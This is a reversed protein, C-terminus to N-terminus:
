KNALQVVPVGALPSSSPKALSPDSSSAPKVKRMQEMMRRPGPDNTHDAFRVTEYKRRIATIRYDFRINSAGGGLERVEFSNASKKTVYLGRCDGNPVPFVRYDKETNVSQIFDPDLQIVAVGNVLQASGFDEFWNEPSEIAALAVKRKGGDIPVVANKSGTCILDGAPDVYCYTANSVNEVFFPYGSSDYNFAMLTDGGNSLFLGAAAPGATGLVGAYTTSNGPVLGTDGWVGAGTPLIGPGWISPSGMIGYTGAGGTSTNIGFVGYATSSNAGGYVGDGSVSTGYVGIGSSGNSGAVGYAIPSNSVGEVGIATYSTGSSEGFIGTGTSSSGFVGNGSSSNTGALASNGSPSQGIVGSVGTIQAASFNGSADRKVIANATNVNTPAATWAFKLTGTKTVPSGTVVFDTTPASLAVSTVTGTGPFTQGSIFTVKGTQDVKFNTGNVALTTDTGKPFLTLTDRVDSKGNVDLTAAPSTTNIGIQSSKQFMISDVIDSTTDWMPIFDVVGKGTVAPNAPPAANKAASTSAPAKTNPASGQVKGALVFASAPLGGVTEADAAKLAYPVSLLLVRAQESGGNVTVGLWRAEGSSFLDQPLGDPKTAGLQVAYNGKADAQVNQTELWLPSGGSEEKYIAFTAGAIGSIAKGQIDTAKGSFNVLRPVTASGASSSSQQANMASCFLLLVFFWPLIHKGSKMVREEKVEKQTREKDGILAFDRRIQDDVTFISV